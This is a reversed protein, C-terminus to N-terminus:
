YTEEAWVPIFDGDKTRTYLILADGMRARLEQETLVKNSIKGDKRPRGTHVGSLFERISFVDEESYYSKRKFSREGNPLIGVPPKINGSDVHRRLQTATRNLLRATNHVTYARKKHKKFDSYLM